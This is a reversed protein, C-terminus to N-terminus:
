LPNPKRIRPGTKKRPEPNCKLNHNKRWTGIKSRKTQCKAAIENDTAGAAWMKLGLKTDWTAPKGNNARNDFPKKATVFTLAPSAQAYSPYFGPKLDNPHRAPSFDCGTDPECPLDCGIVDRYGCKRIRNYDCKTVSCYVPM